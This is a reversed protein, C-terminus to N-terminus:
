SINKKFFSFFNEMKKKFERKIQINKNTLLIWQWNGNLDIKGGSKRFWGICMSTAWAYVLLGYPNM